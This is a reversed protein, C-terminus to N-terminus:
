RSLSFNIDSCKDRPCTCTRIWTVLLTPLTSAFALCSFGESKQCIFPTFMQFFCICCGIHWDDTILLSIKNKREKITKGNIETKEQRESGVDLHSFTCFLIFTRMQYRSSCFPFCKWVQWCVWRITRVCTKRWAPAPMRDMFCLFLVVMLYCRMPRSVFIKYKKTNKNFIIEFHRIKAALKSIPFTFCTSISFIGRFDTKM